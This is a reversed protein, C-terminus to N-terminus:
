GISVEINKMQNTHRRVNAFLVERRSHVSAATSAVAENCYRVTIAYWSAIWTYRRAGFVNCYSSRQRDGDGTAREAFETRAFEIAVGSFRM